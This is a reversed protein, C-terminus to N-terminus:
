ARTNQREHSLEGEGLARSVSMQGRFSRCRSTPGFPGATQTCVRSVRSTAVIVRAAPTNENPPRRMVRQARHLAFHKSSCRQTPPSIHGQLWRGFYGCRQSRRSRQLSGSRIASRAPQAPKLGASYATWTSCMVATAGHSAAGPTTRIGQTDECSALHAPVDVLALMACCRDMM